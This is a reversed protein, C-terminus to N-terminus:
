FRMNAGFRILDVENEFYYDENNASQGDTRGFDMHLYEAKLTWSNDLAYEVGGGIVWGVNLDDEKATEGPTNGISTDDISAVVLGGTVFMLINDMTYGARGRFTGWFPGINTSWVHGDFVETAGQSVNIVGIDAELGFLFNEDWMWNYGGTIAAAAGDPELTAEGHDGARDYNQESEGWAYGISAGAYPGAWLDAKEGALAAVTLLPLCLISGILGARM